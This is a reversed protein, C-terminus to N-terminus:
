VLSVQFLLDAANSYLENEFSSISAELINSTIVDFLLKEMNNDSKSKDSKSKLEKDKKLFSFHSYALQQFIKEEFVIEQLLNKIEILCNEIDM